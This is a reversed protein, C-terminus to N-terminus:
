EVLANRGGGSFDAGMRSPPWIVNVVKGVVLGQSIPGFNNSDISHFENDGEVWLHNRPVRATPKPYKHTCAVTDGGVAIVRKTLIKEPSLPSRFLIVDGRHLSDPSKLGFKQVMTIDNTMTSTGPNFAPTMSRGTIFYPQYVHETFTYIVPVWTLTALITKIHVAASM